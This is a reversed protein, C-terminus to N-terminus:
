AEGGVDQSKDGEGLEKPSAGPEQKIKVGRDLVDFKGFDDWATNITDTRTNPDEYLQFTRPSSPMTIDAPMPADKSFFDDLTMNDLSHGAPLPPLNGFDLGLIRSPFTEHNEAMMQNMQNVAATFPSEWDSFLLHRPSRRPTRTPTKLELLQGPSANANGRSRNSRRSASVSRTIIKHTPTKRTPTKFPSPAQLEQVPTTPRAPTPQAVPNEQAMSEELMRVFEEDIEGDDQVTPPCNEKDSLEASNEKLAHPDSSVEGVHTISDGLVKLSGVTRPSSFLLRRTPRAEDEDELEIPSQQTGTWRAPSSQIARRLAAPANESIMAKRLKTAEFSNARPHVPPPQLAQTEPNQVDGTHQETMPNGPPGMTEPQRNTDIPPFQAESQPYNAESPPFNAESNPFYMDSPPFYAESQPFNAESPPFNAESQPFYAESQPFYADSQPFDSQPFNAASTPITASNNNNKRVRKRPPPHVGAPQGAKSAKSAREASPKGWREEPRQTKYKSMWIGCATNILERTVGFPSSASVTAFCFRRTTQNSRAM